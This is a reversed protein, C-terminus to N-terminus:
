NCLRLNQLGVWSVSFSAACLDPVVLLLGGPGIMIILWDSVGAATLDYKDCEKRCTCQQANQWGSCITCNHQALVMKKLWIWMNQSKKM